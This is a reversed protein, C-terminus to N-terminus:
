PNLILDSAKEGVMMSPANTNGSPIIPMISADAVRLGEIGYVKLNKDVVSMEDIGMKCTGVSHYAGEAYRRIFEEIETDNEFVKNPRIFNKFYKSFNSSKFIKVVTKLSSILRQMDEEDGILNTSIKPPDNHNKSNLRLTGRSNPRCVYSQITVAPKDLLRLGEKEDVEWGMPMFHLQIDPRSETEPKTRFFAVAQSIPSSAPGKGNLLWNLGHKAFYYPNTEVNYTSTNVEGSIWCAPHEQLNEGVGPLDVVVEINNLKLHESPGM